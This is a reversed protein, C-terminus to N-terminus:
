LGISQDLKQLPPKEMECDKYAETPSQRQQPLASPVSVLGPRVFVTPRPPQREPISRTLASTQALAKKSARLHKSLENGLQAPGTSRRIETRIFGASRTRAAPM